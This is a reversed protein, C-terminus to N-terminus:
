PILPNLWEDESNDDESPTKSTIFHFSFSLFIFLLRSSTQCAKWFNLLFVFVTKVFHQKPMIYWGFCHLNGFHCFCYVIVPVFHPSVFFFSTLFDFSFIPLLNRVTLFKAPTAFNRLGQSITRNEAQRRTRYSQTGISKKM